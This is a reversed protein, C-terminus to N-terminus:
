FYRFLIPPSEAIVIRRRLLAEVNGSQVIRYQLCNRLIADTEHLNHGYPRFEAGDEGIFVYVACKGGDFPNCGLWGGAM